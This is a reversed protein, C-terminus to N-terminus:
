RRREGATGRATRDAVSALERTAVSVAALGVTDEEKLEALIGRFREVDRDRVRAMYDDQGGGVDYVAAVVLKRHARSLDESLAQSARHEWQGAGAAAFTKRRLWPIEFLGSAQYYARATALPDAGTERAIELIELLQDLFRLTILRTSFAHDAGVDRIERVRAEFLEKEEGAVVSAFAGRLTALGELNAEVIVAPSVDADANQLVWRTARELVRALGLLWRTVVRANLARQEGMQRLLVRHDALRSAVLWARVVQEASAGTDRRVRYVFTAGMLDVLDNTLQCTVIERRLPHESLSLQGAAVIAAPPYYGVLYSETVPDDPLRGKLLEDKLGLKAYALLVCLEPRAMARGVERREALVDRSPLGEAVRDLDGAKEMDFMLDRFDDM